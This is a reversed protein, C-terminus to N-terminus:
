RIKLNELNYVLSLIYLPSPWIPAQGKLKRVYAYWLSLTHHILFSHWTKQLFLGNRPGNLGFLLKPISTERDRKDTMQATSWLGFCTSINLNLKTHPCIKVIDQFKKKENKWYSLIQIYRGYTTIIKIFNKKIDKLVRVFYIWRWREM